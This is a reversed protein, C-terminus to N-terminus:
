QSETTSQCTSYIASIDSELGDANLATVAVSWCVPEILEQSEFYHSGGQVKWQYKHATPSVDNGANAYIRYEQAGEVPFWQLFIKKPNTTEVVQGDRQPASCTKVHFGGERPFEFYDYCRLVPAAPAKVEPKAPECAPIPTSPTTVQPIPVQVEVVPAPASVSHRSDQSESYLVQVKKKRAIVLLIVVVIFAVLVLAGVLLWPGSIEM